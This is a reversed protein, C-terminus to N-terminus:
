GLALACLAEVGVPIAGDNFDFRPTHLGPWSATDSPRLGLFFFCTAAHRGYYSFDEGGMVPRDLDIVRDSGLVARLLRQAQATLAEDNRTVPYGVNWRIEAECGHAEATFRAISKVREELRERVEATLARTTGELEVTEPIINDVTGGAIRGVTCVAAELPGCARSVATQLSLVVASAAVVPDRCLHPLAAHGGVGRVTILFEDTSAMMPGPRTALVGLPLTPWGHLGYVSGVRPGLWGGAAGALVGDRCMREGGGGNEEAPQFLLTVGRPREVDRLVRAAGLLMATHGDHGCAHMVGPTVSAYSRGTEETIPLADMDARLGVAPADGGGSAPLHAVVGTGGALGARHEIGLRTLEACVAASTRHEQYSLEPHAHLDHRIAALDGLHPEILSRLGAPSTLTAM